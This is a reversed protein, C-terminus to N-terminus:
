ADGPGGPAPRALVGDRKSEFAVPRRPEVVVAVLIYLNDVALRVRDLMSNFEVLSFDGDIRKM